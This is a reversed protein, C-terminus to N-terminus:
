GLREERMKRGTDETELWSQSPVRPRINPMLPHYFTTPPKPSLSDPASRPREMMRLITAVSALLQASPPNPGM